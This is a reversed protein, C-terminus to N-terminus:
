PTAEGAVAMASNIAARTAARAGALINELRQLEAVDGTAILAEIGAELEDNITDAARRLKRVIAPTPAGGLDLADVSVGADPLQEIIRARLDEAAVLLADDAGAAQLDTLLKATAGLAHRMRAEPNAPPTDNERISLPAPASVQTDTGVTPAKSRKPRTGVTPAEGEEEGARARKMLRVMEPSVGCTEAIRRDSWVAIEADDLAASVARRKDANTRRVGNAQNAGLARLLAEHRTGEIVNVAITAVGARMAGEVRYWGDVVLLQAGDNVVDVPPFRAGDRWAEAYEDVVGDDHEARMRLAPDRELAEPMVQFPDDQTM